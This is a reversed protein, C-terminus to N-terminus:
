RTAPDLLVAGFYDDFPDARYLGKKTLSGLIAAFARPGIGHVHANDLYVTGWEDGAEGSVCGEYNNRLAELVEGERRTLNM